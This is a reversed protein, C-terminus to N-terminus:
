DETTWKYGSSWSSQRKAASMYSGKKIARVIARYTTGPELGSVTKKNKKVGKITKVLTDDSADYVRIQYSKAYKGKSKFKKWTLRVSTDTVSDGIKMLQRVGKKSIKYEGAESEDVAVSSFGTSASGFGNGDYMAVSMNITDTFTFDAYQFLEVIGQTVEFAKNAVDEVGEQEQGEEGGSEEDGTVAVSTLLTDVNPNFEAEDFDVDEESEEYLYLQPFDSDESQYESMDASLSIDAAFYIVSGNGDVQQMKWVMWYNWDDVLESPLGSEPNLGYGIDVYVGEQSDLFTFMPWAGEMMMFFDDATNCTKMKRIDAWKGPNYSYRYNDPEDTVWDQADADFYYMIGTIPTTDNNVLYPIGAWDETNGDTTDIVSCDLSSSTVAGFTSTPFAGVLVFLSMAGTFAIIKKM